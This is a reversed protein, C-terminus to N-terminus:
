GSTMDPTQRTYRQMNITLNNKNKNDNDINHTFNCLSRTIHARQTGLVYIFTM